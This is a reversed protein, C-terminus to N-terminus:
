FTELQEENGEPYDRFGLHWQSYGQFLVEAERKLGM